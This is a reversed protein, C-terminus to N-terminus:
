RQLMMAHLRWEKRSCHVFHSEHENVEEAEPEQQKEISVFLKTWKEALPNGAMILTATRSGTDATQQEEQTMKDLKFLANVYM